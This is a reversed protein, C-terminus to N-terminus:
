EPLLERYNPMNLAKALKKATRISLRTSPKELRSVNAQKLGARDALQAQTWRLRLREARTRSMRGAEVEVLMEQYQKERAARLLRDFNPNSARWRNVLRELTPVAAVSSDFAPQEDPKALEPFGRAAAVDVVYLHPASTTSLVLMHSAWAVLRRDTQTVGTNV